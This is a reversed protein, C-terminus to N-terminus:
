HSTLGSLTNKGPMGARESTNFRRFTIILISIVCLIVIILLASCM